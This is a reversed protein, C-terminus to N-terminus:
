RQLPEHPSVDGTTAGLAADDCTVDPVQVAALLATPPSLVHRRSPTHLVLQCRHHRQLPHQTAHRPPSNSRLDTPPQLRLPRRFPTVRRHQRDLTGRPPKHRSAHCRTPDDITADRHQQPPLLTPPPTLVHPTPPTHLLLQSRRHRQLPHSSPKHHPSPQRPQLNCPTTPLYHTHTSTPSIHQAPSNNPLYRSKHATDTTTTTQIGAGRRTHTADTTAM